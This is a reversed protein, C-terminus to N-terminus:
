RGTNYLRKIEDASLVRNYIRVDDILGDFYGGTAPYSKGILLAGTNSNGGTTHTITEQFVGDVYLSVDFSDDYIFVVHNWQGVTKIYAFQYAKVNRTIFGLKNTADQFYIEWGTPNTSKSMMSQGAPNSTDHKFWVSVTMVSGSKALDLLSGDNVQV